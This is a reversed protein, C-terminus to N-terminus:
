VVSTRPTAITLPAYRKRARIVAESRYMEDVMVRGVCQPNARNYVMLVDAIHRANRTTAMELMPLMYAQDEVVRFYSGDEDRLDRDHIREWLWRRFTRVATGRWPGTRFNDDTYAPWRGDNPKVNSIWSGYTLWADQERYMRAITDLARNTALWDDGDLIVMIDNPDEGSRNVANVVNEMAYLRRDNRTVHIRPDGRGADLAREFTADGCPDVTVYMEFDRYTQMRVSDICKAVYEECAGCNTIIKM